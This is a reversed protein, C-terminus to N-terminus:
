YFSLTTELCVEYSCKLNCSNKIAETFGEVGDKVCAIREIGHGFMKSNNAFMLEQNKLFSIFFIDPCKFM